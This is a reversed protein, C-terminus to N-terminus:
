LVKVSKEGSNKRIYLDLARLRLRFVSRRSMGLLEACEEMTYGRIYRNYLLLKEKCEPLLMVSRRLGFMEAKLEARALDDRRLHECTEVQNKYVSYLELAEAAEKLKENEM